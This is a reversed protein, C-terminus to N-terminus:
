IETHDGAGELVELDKISVLAAVQKGRRKLIIRRGGYAVQNVLEAIDRRADSVSVINGDHEDMQNPDTM